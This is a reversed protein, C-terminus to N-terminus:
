MAKLLEIAREAHEILLKDAAVTEDTVDRPPNSGIDEVKLHGDKFMQLRQRVIEIRAQFDAIAKEIETM